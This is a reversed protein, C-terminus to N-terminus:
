GCDSWVNDANLENYVSIHLIISVEYATLAAGSRWAADGNIPVLLLFFGYSM